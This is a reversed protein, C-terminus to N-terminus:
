FPLEESDPDVEEMKPAPVAKYADPIYTSEQKPAFTGEGGGLKASADPSESRSDVGKCESAEVYWATRKIGDNGTWSRNKLKGVVFISSGKHFFRTVFEASQKWATVDVFLVKTEGNSDKGDNIAVTFNTVTAGSGTTKLEPDGTLRGGIQVSCYNFYAM